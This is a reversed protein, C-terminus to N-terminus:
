LDADFPADADTDLDAPCDDGLFCDDGVDAEGLVFDDPECGWGPLIPPACEEEITTTRRIIAPRRHRHSSM